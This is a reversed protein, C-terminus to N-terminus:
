LEEEEECLCEKNCCVSSNGLCGCYQYHRIHKEALSEKKKRGTVLLYLFMSLEFATFLWIAWNTWHFTLYIVLYVHMAAEFAVFAPGIYERHRKFLEIM